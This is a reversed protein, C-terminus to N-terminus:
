DLLWLKGGYQTGRLVKSDGKATVTGYRNGIPQQLPLRQLNESVFSGKRLRANEEAITSGYM